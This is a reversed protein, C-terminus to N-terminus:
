LGDCNNLGGGGGGGGEKPTVYKIFPGKSHLVVHDYPRYPMIGHVYMYTLTRYQISIEIM